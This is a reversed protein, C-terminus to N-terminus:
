IHDLQHVHSPLPLMFACALVSFYDGDSRCLNDSSLESDSGELEYRCDRNSQSCGPIPESPSDSKLVHHIGPLILLKAIRHVDGAM